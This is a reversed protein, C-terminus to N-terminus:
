VVPGLGPHLAIKDFLRHRLYDLDNYARQFLRRADEPRFSLGGANCVVLHPKLEDLPGRLHDLRLWVPGSTGRDYPIGETDLAERHDDTSYEAVSAGAARLGLMMHRVMDNPGRWYGGVHLVRLRRPDATPLRM